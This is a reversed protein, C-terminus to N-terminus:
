WRYDFAVHLTRRQVYIDASLNRTFIINAGIGITAGGIVDRVWHKKSSVRSAGVFGALILSPAGVKWGYRIQLFGAGAFASATHGSPFSHVGGNPRRSNITYKLTYTVGMTSVYSKIFQIRGEKDERKYTELLAYVPLAVAFIDGYLEFLDKGLAFWPLLITGSLIKAIRVM